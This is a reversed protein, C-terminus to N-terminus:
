DWHYDKMQSKVKGMDSKCGQESSQGYAIPDCDGKFDEMGMGPIMRGEMPQMPKEVENKYMGKM